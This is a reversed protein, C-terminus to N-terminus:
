LNVQLAPVRKPDPECVVIAADCVALAALGDAQFEVSGPCDIFTFADDLYVADFVNLGVSLGHARAEPAADGISTGDMVRGQQPIAGTRALIAELLTTKGAMYPGVIAIARAGQQAGGNQKANKDQGM